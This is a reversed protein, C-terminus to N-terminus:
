VGHDDDHSVQMWMWLHVETSYGAVGMNAHSAVDNIFFGKVGSIRGQRADCTM